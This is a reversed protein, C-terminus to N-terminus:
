STAYVDTFLESLDPYPSDSAFAWAADVQEVARTDFDILDGDTVLSQEVLWSRFRPVPDAALQAAVEGAPVYAQDDFRAHGGPRHVLAEVLSPGKGSRAREVATQLAEWTGMFDCGDVTGAPINYAVARDAVHDVPSTVRFATHEAYANNYCVFIVPLAWISALTLAEHFAGENVAGDGFTCATVRGDGRVLSSLAWGTAIPLQGGVVGSNMVVNASLDITHVWGSKGHQSGTARGLVEAWLHNVSAGKALQSVTDRYYSVLYDEPRLSLGVAAGVLETGRWSFWTTALTGSDILRQVKQDLQRALSVCGYVRRLMEGEIM